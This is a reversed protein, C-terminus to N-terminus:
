QSLRNALSEASAWGFAIIAAGDAPKLEDFVKSAVKPLTGNLVVADVSPERVKKPAVCFSQDDYRDECGFRKALRRGWAREEGSPKHDPRPVRDALGDLLTYASPQAFRGGVLVDEDPFTIAARRHLEEAMGALTKKAPRGPLSSGLGWLICPTGGIRELSGFLFGAFADDDSQATVVLPFTEVQFDLEADEIGLDSKTLLQGLEDLEPPKLTDSDRSDIRM